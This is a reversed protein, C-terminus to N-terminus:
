EMIIMRVSPLHLTFMGYGSEINSVYNIPEQVLQNYINGGRQRQGLYDFYLPSINNLSVYLTDGDLEQLEVNFEAHSDQFEWDTVLKTEVVNNAALPDDIELPNNYRSYFHVAYFNSGVPDTFYVRVNTQTSDIREYSVSDIEVVEYAKTIASVRKGTSPDLANLEYQDGPVIPLSLSAYVGNSLELLTDVENLHTITIIGNSVLMQALLNETDTSDGEQYSLATFSKALYVIAGNGPLAQSWVVPLSEAEELDIPIPTPVCAQACLILVFLGFCRTLPQM